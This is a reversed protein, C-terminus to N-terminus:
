RFPHSPFEATGCLMGFKAKQGLRNAERDSDLRIGVIEFGQAHHKQYLGVLNPLEAVCPGCGSAWFDVLVIKGRLAALDVVRGDIGTFKWDLPAAMRKEREARWGEPLKGAAALRIKDLMRGFYVLGRVTASPSRLGPIITPYASAM